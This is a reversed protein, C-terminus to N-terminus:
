RCVDCYSKYLMARCIDCNAAILRLSTFRLCGHALRTEHFTFERSLSILARSTLVAFLPTIDTGQGTPHGNSPVPSTTTHHGSGLPTVTVRYLPHLPTTDGPPAEEVIDFHSFSGYTFPISTALGLVSTFILSSACSSCVCASSTLSLIQRQLEEMQADHTGRVEKLEDALADREARVRLLLEEKDRAASRGREVIVELAKVRELLASREGEARRREVGEEGAQRSLRGVQTELQSIKESWSGKIDTLHLHAEELRRELLTREGLLSQVREDVTLQAGLGACEGSTRRELVAVRDRLHRVEEESQALTSALQSRERGSSHRLTEMDEPGCMISLVGAWVHSLLCWGGCSPSLEPGCMVFFAGAGVHRLFCWGGCSPSLVLGCMVPLAGAWTFTGMIPSDVFLSVSVQLNSYEEEYRRLRNVESKLQEIQSSSEKLTNVREAVEQEKVLLLHKIKAMEQTQFGELQDLDEQYQFVKKKYEDSARLAEELALKQKVIELKEEELVSKERELVELTTKWEEKQEQLQKQFEEEKKDLRRGWEDDRQALRRRWEDERRELRKADKSGVVPAVHLLPHIDQVPAVHFVPHIGPCSCRAVCPTYRSLLLTCCLTYVQVPAVYLVPHIGPCSCRAVRPTYSSLLLTFCLTYVQVPAVHFVPHIGPCSCRAVCPTYRSLLLTFCLTYVQVPAVHLVPHIGPCSCRAVCPTYRSLLLTFCPTYVQVPAVHLVPHIGPCSCRSVRPTYSSLLLTCCPTYVQVPAVHFVPHIGPCSCRAVRPTYRSLLLVPHIGPYSCRAVCPTYMIQDPLKEFSDTLVLSAM